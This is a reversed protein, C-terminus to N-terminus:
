RAELRDLLRSDAAVAPHFDPGSAYPLLRDFLYVAVPYADDLHQRLNLTSVLLSGTGAKVEFVYGTRSLNKQKSLFSSTTWVGEIIPVLEKPWANLPFNWGGELLNFFQLDCFGEHPFGHLAPHEPLMTGLAGGSAPFFAADGGSEFQTRDALLWVRGGAALRRAAASDLSSTILLGNAAPADGVFGYYRRNAQWKM